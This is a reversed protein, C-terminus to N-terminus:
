NDFAYTNSVILECEGDNEPATEPLWKENRDLIYEYYPNEHALQYSPANIRKGNITIKKHKTKEDTRLDCGSWMSYLKKLFMITISTDTKENKGTGHRDRFGFLQNLEEIQPIIIESIEAIKAHPIITENDQSNKLGLVQNINLIKDMQVARVQALKKYQERERVEVPTRRKEDKMNFFHKKNVQSKNYFNNWIDELIEEDTDYKFSRIFRYKEYQMKEERTAIKREINQKIAKFRERNIEAIIKYEEMINNNDTIEYLQLDENQGEIEEIDFSDKKITYGCKELFSYFVPKYNMRHFNEEFENFVNNTYLWSPCDDEDQPATNDTAYSGGAGVTYNMTDFIDIQQERNMIDMKTKWLTDPREGVFKSNINFYLKNDNLKRVRMSSQFIDRVTCSMASGYLFIEDFHIITPDFNVGVTILPSYILLQINAWEEDINKLNNNNDSQQAYYFKNKPVPEGKNAYYNVMEIYFDQAKSSSAFVAVIKKGNDLSDLMKVKFNDFDDIEIAERPDPIFTNEIIHIQQPQIFEKICDITRQTLFADACIVRGSTELLQQFIDVCGKIMKMTERSSFQKLNSESEDMILLDYPQFNYNLKFLSEMQIVIRDAKCLEKPTSINLYSKFKDQPNPFLKNLDNTLNQAFIQRPSLIIVRGVENAVIYDKIRSTKGTGMASKICICNRTNTFPRLYREHYIERTIQGLKCEEYTDFFHKMRDQISNSFLEPHILKAWRRLTGINAGTNKVVVFRQWQDECDGDIYGAFQASWDIWLQVSMRCNKLAAGVTWWVNYPQRGAGCNNICSLYFNPTEEYEMPTSCDPRIILRRQVNEVSLSHKPSVYKNKTQGKTQKKTKKNKQPTSIESIERIVDLNYFDEEQCDEYYGVLHHIPDENYKFNPIRIPILPRTKNYKNQWLMRFTQNSRYVGDDMILKEQEDKVYFFEPYKERNQDIDDIMYNIIEDLESANRFKKLTNIKIHYSAKELGQWTGISDMGCASSILVDNYTFQEAGYLRKMVEHFYDIFKYLIEIPDRDNIVWELDFYPVVPRHDELLEFAWSLKSYNQRLEEINEFSTYQNVVKQKLNLKNSAIIVQHNLQHARKLTPDLTSLFDLMTFFNPPDLLM